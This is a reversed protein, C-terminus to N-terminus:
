LAGILILDWEGGVEQAYTPIQADKTLFISGVLPSKTITISNLIAYYIYICIEVNGWQTRRSLFTTFFLQGLPTDKVLQVFEQSPPSTPSLM